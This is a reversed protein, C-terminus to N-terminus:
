IGNTECTRRLKPSPHLRRFSNRPWLDPHSTRWEVGQKSWKELKSSSLTVQHNTMTGYLIADGPIYYSRGFTSHMISLSVWGNSSLSCQTTLLPPASRNSHVSFNRGIHHVGPLFDDQEVKWVGQVFRALLVLHELRWRNSSGRRCFLALSKLMDWYKWRCWDNWWLTECFVRNNLIYYHTINLSTIETFLNKKRHVINLGRGKAGWGVM